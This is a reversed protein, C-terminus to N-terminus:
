LTYHTKNSDWSINSKTKVVKEYNLNDRTDHETKLLSM